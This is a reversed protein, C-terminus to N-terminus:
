EKRFLCISVFDVKQGSVKSLQRPFIVLSIMRLALPAQQLPNNTGNIQKVLSLTPRQVYFSNKTLDLGKFKFCEGFVCFPELLVLFQLALFTSIILWYGSFGFWCNVKGKLVRHKVNLHVGQTRFLGGEHKILLNILKLRKKKKKM